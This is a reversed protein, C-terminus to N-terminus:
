YRDCWALTDMGFYGGRLSKGTRLIGRNMRGPTGDLRSPSHAAVQLCVHIITSASPCSIHQTGVAVGSFLVLLAGQLARPVESRM